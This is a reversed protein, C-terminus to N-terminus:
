RSIAFSITPIDQCFPLRPFPSYRHKEVPVRPEKSQPNTTKFELLRSQGKDFFGLDMRSGSQDIGVPEYALYDMGTTRLYRIEKLEFLAGDLQVYESERHPKNGRESDAIM